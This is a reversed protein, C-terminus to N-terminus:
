FRLRERVFHVDDILHAVIDVTDRQSSAFRICERAQFINETILYFCAGHKEYPEITLLFDDYESAVQTTFKEIAKEASCRVFLELVVGKIKRPNWHSLLLIAKSESLSHFKRRVSRVTLGAQGAIYSNPRDFRNRIAEYVNRDNLSLKRSSPPFNLTEQRVVQPRDMKEFISQLFNHLDGPQRKVYIISLADDFYRTITRVNSTNSFREIVSDMEVRERFKSFWVREVKMSLSNPNIMSYWGSFIGEAELRSLRRRVTDKDIGMDSAVQRISSVM